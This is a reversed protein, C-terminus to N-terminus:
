IDRDSYVIAKGSPTLDLGLFFPEVTDDELTVFHVGEILRRDVLNKLAKCFESDELKYKEKTPCASMAIDELIRMEHPEMSM